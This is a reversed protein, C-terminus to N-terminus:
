QGVACIVSMYSSFGCIVTLKRGLAGRYFFLQLSRPPLSILHNIIISLHNNIKPPSIPEVTRSRERCALSVVFQSQNPKNPNTQSQKEECDGSVAWFVCLNPKNRMFHSFVFDSYRFGFCIRFGFISIRFPEVTRSRERCALSVVPLNSISIDM